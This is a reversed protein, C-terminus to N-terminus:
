EETQKFLRHRIYAQYYFLLLYVELLYNVGFDADTSPENMAWAYVKFSLRTLIFLVVAWQLAILRYHKIMEDEQKQRAGAISLLGTLMLVQVLLGQGSTLNNLDPANINLLAIAAIICVLGFWKAKNPLLLYPIM